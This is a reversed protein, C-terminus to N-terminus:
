GNSRGFDIVLKVTVDPNSVSPGSCGTLEWEGDIGYPPGDVLASKVQGVLNHLAHHFHMLSTGEVSLKKVAPDTLLPM